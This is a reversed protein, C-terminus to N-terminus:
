QSPGDGDVKVPHDRHALEWVTHYIHRTVAQYKDFLIKDATDTPRHYDAHVGSFYFISPVGHRAFNYHDSRYYYRNPDKPDNYTYDLKLHSFSSNVAENLHHLESSIRDAGIVYIYNPNSAHQADTRGIMDVNVNTVTQQLPFVPNEAYYKSGLLGKEEATFFICAVSRTPGLGQRRAEVLADMIELVAAVGSANDDAGPYISKGRKGLHDYHASLVIVQDPHKHGPLWGILNKSYLVNRTLHQRITLRTPLHLPRGAGAHKIRNRNQIFTDYRDGIIERAMGLSIFVSNPLRHSKPKGIHLSQGLVRNRSDRINQRLYPDVILVMRVKHDAAVQLKRGLNGAWDSPQKSGTIYSISDADVPEGPYIMITKGRVRAKAYDSYAPDDIGYGLFLVDKVKHLPLNQNIDQFSLFDKLHSYAQGNIEVNIREWKIWTFSVEQHYGRLAPAHQLGMRQMEGTLYAAAKDHGPSGTERGEMSRDALTQIHDRLEEQTITEAFFAPAFPDSQLPVQARSTVAFLCIGVICGRLM